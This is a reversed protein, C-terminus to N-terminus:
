KKLMWNSYQMWLVFCLACDSCILFKNRVSPSSYHPIKRYFEISFHKITFLDRNWLQKNLVACKVGGGGRFMLLLHPPLIFAVSHLFLLKGPIILKEFPLIFNLHFLPSIPACANYKTILRIPKQLLFIRKIASQPAWSLATPCHLLHSHFM